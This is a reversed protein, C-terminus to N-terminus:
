FVRRKRYAEYGAKTATSKLYDDDFLKLVGWATEPEVQIKHSADDFNVGVGWGDNVDKLSDYGFESVDVTQEIDALKRLKDEDAQCEKRFADFDSLLHSSELKGLTQAARPEYVSPPVLLDLFSLEFIREFLTGQCVVVDEGIVVADARPDLNLVDHDLTTLITNRFLLKLALDRRVVKSRTFKRFYYLREDGACIEVAYAWCRKLFDQDLSGLTDLASSDAMRPLFDSLSPVKDIPLYGIIKPNNLQDISELEVVRVDEHKDIMGMLKNLISTLTDRFAQEVKRDMRTQTLTYSYAHKAEKGDGTKEKTREVFFLRAAAGKGAVRDRADQFSKRDLAM